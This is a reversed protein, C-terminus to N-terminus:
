IMVILHFLSTSCLDQLSGVVGGGRVQGSGICIYLYLEKLKAIMTRIILGKCGMM